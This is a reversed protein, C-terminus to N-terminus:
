EVNHLKQTIPKSFDTFNGASLPQLALSRVRDLYQKNRELKHKISTNYEKIEFRM